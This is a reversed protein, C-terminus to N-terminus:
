NITEQLRRHIARPQHIGQVAQLPVHRQEGDQGGEEEGDEDEHVLVDRGDDDVALVVFEALSGAVVQVEHDDGDEHDDATEDADGEVDGGGDDGDDM